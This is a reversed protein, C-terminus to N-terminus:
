DNNNQTAYYWVTGIIVIAAVALIIWVWTIATNNTVGTIDADTSTRAVSYSSNTTSSLNDNKAMNDNNGIDNIAGEIGNEVHGIGNRVDSGLHEVGNVVTNATGSVVNKVDNTAFSITSICIICFIISVLLLTKKYM